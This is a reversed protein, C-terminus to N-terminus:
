IWIISINKSNEFSQWNFVILIFCTGHLFYFINNIFFLFNHGLYWYSLLFNILYFFNISKIKRAGMTLFFNVIVM